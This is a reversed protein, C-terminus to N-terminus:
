EPLRGGLAPALERRSAIGLKRYANALHFEVAKLTVFLAQAVERNSRGAAALEVVRLESPTLSAPGSLALRRPRAGLARLEEVARTGLATAGLREALDAAEALTRRAELRQGAVRLAVGLEVAVRAQELRAPSRRAVDFADRLIALGESGGTAAALGRLAVALQRAAQWSRAVAVQEEALRRARKRENVGALAHILWSRWPSLALNRVGLEEARSEQEELLEAAASVDGRGLLLRARVSPVLVLYDLRDGWRAPDLDIAREAAELENREGLALALVACAAPYFMEWGSDLADIAAQADALADSLRGTHLNPWARCYSVVAYKTLSGSAQAEELAANLLELDADLEDAALLTGHALEVASSTPHLERVPLDRLARRVLGLPVDKSGIAAMSHQHAVWLAVLPFREASGPADLIAAARRDAEGHLSRDFEAAALFGAQLRDLLRPDDVCDALGASFAEAARNFRGAAKLVEGEDAAITARRAPDTILHRAEDLADAAALADGSQALARGLDVLLEARQPASPPEELARRLIAVSAAPDGRAAAARGAAHLLDVVAPDESPPAAMLHSAIADLPPNAAAALIGAARRHTVALEHAPISRYVASRVIPHVFGIRAGGQLVRSAALRDVVFATDDLPSGVVASLRGLTAEGGLLAAARAIAVADPGLRSLRSTVRRVIEEPALRDIAVPDATPDLQRLLERVYFPNGHTAQWCAVALAEDAPHGAEALADRVAATSLPAPRLTSGAVMSRLLGLEVAEDAQTPWAAVLLLVPLEAMRQALYSLIRLSAVDAWHADDVALVLPHREALNAVLWYFGHLIPFQDTGRLEAPVAEGSLVPAVHAAAGSLLGAHEPDSAVARAFLDLAIGYAYAELEDGGAELVRLGREEAQAVAIRLLSSKGIGAEGEIVVLRAQGGATADVARELFQLEASRELLTAPAADTLRSGIM